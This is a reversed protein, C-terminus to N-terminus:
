LCRRVRVIRLYRAAEYATTSCAVWVAGAALGAGVDSIWHVGLYIRSFGIAIVSTVCLALLASKTRWEDWARMGLYALAGLVVTSGMAHGSPFSYGGARVLALNLDPRARMFLHKLVENLMAGGSATGLLYATWRFRKRVLLVTAVIAVICGMGVPSGVMTAAAFFMTDTSDRHTRVFDYTREDFTKGVQYKTRINGAIEFFGDGACAALALGVAVIIFVPWYRPLRVAPTRSAISVAARRIVRISPPLVGAAIGWLVFFMAVFVATAIM